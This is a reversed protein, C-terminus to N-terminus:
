KNKTSTSETPAPNQYEVNIKINDDLSPVKKVWFPWLEVQASEVEVFSTLYQESKIRDKGILNLKLTKEDLKPGIYGVGSVTVVMEGKNLDQSKVAKSLKTYDMEVLEKQQSTVKTKFNDQAVKEFDTKKFILAQAKYKIKVTFESVQDSVKASSTFQTESTEIGSEIFDYEPDIKEKLANKADVLAADGVSKKIKDIDSQSVVTVIKSYGGAMAASSQGYFKDSPFGSVSFKGAAVNYSDGEKDAQISANAVGPVPVGAELTFGPVTVRATTRFVKGNKTLSAGANLVQADSDYSNYIRVTGSAKAGIEKTGTATAKSEKELSTETLKAPISSKPLDVDVLAKDATFDFSHNFAETKVILSVKARPLFLFAVFALVFVSFILGFILLKKNFKFKRKGSFDAVKTGAKAFQPHVEPKHDLPKTKLDSKAPEPFAKSKTTDVLLEESPEFAVNKEAEETKEEAKETKEEEDDLGTEEPELFERDLKDSVRIGLQEALNIGVRDTTILAIKKNLRAAEKKLLKLNVLSQAVVANRPLVLAVTNSSIKEMRDIVSTIEEDPELYLVKEM